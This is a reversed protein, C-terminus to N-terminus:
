QVISISITEETNFLVLVEDACLNLLLDGTFGICGMEVFHSVEILITKNRPILEEVDV